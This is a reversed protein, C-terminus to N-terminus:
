LLHCNVPFDHIIWIAVGILHASAAEFWVSVDGFQPLEYVLVFACKHMATAAEILSFLPM